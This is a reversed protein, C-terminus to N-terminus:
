REDIALRLERKREASRQPDPRVRGTAAGAGTVAVAVIEDVDGVEALQQAAEVLARAGAVGIAAAGGVDAVETCQQGVEVLGAWLPDPRCSATPIAIWRGPAGSRPTKKQGAARPCARDSLTQRSRPRK